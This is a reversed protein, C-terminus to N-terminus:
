GNTKKADVTKLFSRYDTNFAKVLYDPLSNPDIPRPQGSEHEAMAANVTILPQDRLSNGPKMSGYGMLETMRSRDFTKGTMTPYEEFEDEEIHERLPRRSTQTSMNDLAESIMSGFAESLITPLMRRVEERVLKQIYQKIQENNAM